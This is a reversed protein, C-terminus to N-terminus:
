DFLESLFGERRRRRRRHGGGHHGDGSGFAGSDEARSSGPEYDAQERDILRELEGRDLFVGRCDRCQEITVGNREYGRMAGECKPCVLDRVDHTANM